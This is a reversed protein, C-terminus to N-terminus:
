YFNFIYIVFYFVFGPGTLESPEAPTTCVRWIQLTLMIKRMEVILLHADSTHRNEAPPFYKVRSTTDGALLWVRCWTRTRLYKFIVFRTEERSIAVMHLSQSSVWHSGRSGTEPWCKCWKPSAYIHSSSVSCHIFCYFARQVFDNRALSTWTFEAKVWVLSFPCLRSWPPPPPYIYSRTLSLCSCMAIPIIVALVWLSCQACTIFKESASMCRHLFCSVCVCPHGPTQTCVRLHIVGDFGDEQRASRSLSRM